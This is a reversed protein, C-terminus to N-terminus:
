SKSPAATPCPDNSSYIETKTGGVSAARTDCSTSSFFSRVPVYSATYHPSSTMSGNSLFMRGGGTVTFAAVSVGGTTVAYLVPPNGSDNLIWLVDDRRHSCAMGSAERIARNTITGVFVPNGFPARRLVSDSGQAFVCIPLVGIAAVLLISLRKM